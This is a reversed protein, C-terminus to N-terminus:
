NCPITRRLPLLGFVTMVKMIFMASDYMCARVQAHPKFADPQHKMLNGLFVM